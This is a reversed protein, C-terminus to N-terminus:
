GPVTSVLAHDGWARYSLTIAQSATNHWYLSYTGDADPTFDGKGSQDTGQEHITVDRGAHSHLDWDMPADATWSWSLVAGAALQTNFEAFSGPAVSVDREVLNPATNTCGTLLFAFLALARWDFM